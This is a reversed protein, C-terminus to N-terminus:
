WLKRRDRFWKLLDPLSNASTAPYYTDRRERIATPFLPRWDGYVGAWGIAQRGLKPLADKDVRIPKILPLGGAMHTQYLRGGAWRFHDSPIRNEKAARRRERKRRNLITRLGTRAKRKEKRKAGQRIYM